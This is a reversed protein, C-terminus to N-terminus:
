RSSVFEERRSRECILGHLQSALFRETKQMSESTCGGIHPTILLNSHKRAYEVLPNGMMGDSSEDALVDLAAGAIRGSALVELLAAEDILEGRATNIFYSQPKMMQFMAATFFGHTDERLDAHISVLDSERLLQEPSVAEVGTAVFGQPLKPDTVLVRADFAQLYRAVIKGLRGYGFLGATKQHLETGQFLDRQWGGIKVDHAAAPIHRLLALMLGLTHEATARIDKLFDTKGRLSVIEIGRRAAEVTDIHNLGTTPTVIIKLNPAMAMLAADIRHRLRVWLVEPESIAAGLAERDLDSLTVRGVQELLAAADRPFGSSESVLIRPANM